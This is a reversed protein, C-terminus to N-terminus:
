VVPCFRGFLALAVKVSRVLYSNWNNVVLVSRSSWVHCLMDAEWSVTAVSVPTMDCTSKKNKM